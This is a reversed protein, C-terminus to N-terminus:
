AKIKVIKTTDLSNVYLTYNMTRDVNWAEIPQLWLSLMDMVGDECSLTFLSGDIREMTAVTRDKNLYWRM